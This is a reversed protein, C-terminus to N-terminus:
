KEGKSTGVLDMIAKFLEDDTLTGFIKKSEDNTTKTM